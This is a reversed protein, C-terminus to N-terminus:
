VGAASRWNDSGDSFLCTQEMTVNCLESCGELTTAHLLLCMTGCIRGGIKGGMEWGDPFTRPMWWRVDQGTLTVVLEEVLGSLKLAHARTREDVCMFALRKISYGAKKRSKVLKKVAAVDGVGCVIVCFNTLAPCLPEQGRRRRSGRLAEPVTTPTPEETELGQLRAPDVVVLTELERFYALVDATLLDIWKYVWLEKVGSALSGGLYESFLDEAMLGSILSRRFPYCLPRTSSRWIFVKRSPMMPSNFTTPITPVAPVTSDRM